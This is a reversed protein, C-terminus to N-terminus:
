GRHDLVEERDRWVEKRLREREMGGARERGGGGEDGEGVGQLFAFCTVSRACTVYM